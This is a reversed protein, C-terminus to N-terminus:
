KLVIDLTVDASDGIVPDLRTGKMGFAHRDIHGVAHYHPHAPDGAVTVDLHEPQTVGHITLTGDMGFAEAGRPAITTSAFTWTPFQKTDFYDPSSLSGDRDSDGSHIKTADLVAAVRLPITSDNQVDVSGSLIPVTGTVREVFIHAIVFTATSKATDIARGVTQDARAPAGALAFAACALVAAAARM